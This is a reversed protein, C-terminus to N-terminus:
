AWAGAVLVDDCIICVAVRAGGCDEVIIRPEDCCWGLRGLGKRIREEANARIAARVEDELEELDDPM